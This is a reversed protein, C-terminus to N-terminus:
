DISDLEALSLLLFGYPYAGVGQLCYQIRWSSQVTYLVITLECVLAQVYRLSASPDLSVSVCWLAVQIHSSLIM